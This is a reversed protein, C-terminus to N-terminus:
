TLKERRKLEKEIAERIFDSRKEKDSLVADIRALTGEPFRAPTQEDNIRIRGVPRKTAPATSITLTQMKKIDGIKVALGIDGLYYIDSQFALGSGLIVL